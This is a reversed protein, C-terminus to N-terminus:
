GHPTLLVVQDDSDYGLIQGANNIDVVARVTTGQSSADLFRNLDLANTSNFCIVPVTSGVPGYNGVAVNSDNIATLGLGPLAPWIRRKNDVFRVERMGQTLNWVFSKQPGGGQTRSYGVVVRNNNVDSAITGPGMTGIADSAGNRYRIYAWDNIGGAIDGADNMAGIPLFTADQQGSNPDWFFSFNNGPSYQGQTAVMFNANACCVGSRGSLGPNKGSPGFSLIQFSHLASFSYVGSGDDTVSKPILSASDAASRSAVFDPAGDHWLVVHVVSSERAQGVAYHGNESLYIPLVQVNSLPDFHTVSYQIASAHAAISASWVLAVVRLPKM